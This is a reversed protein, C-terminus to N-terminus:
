YRATNLWNHILSHDHSGWSDLHCVLVHAATLSSFRLLITKVVIVIIFIIITIIIKKIIIIIIIIIVIIM